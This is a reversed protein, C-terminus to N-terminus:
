QKRTKEGTASYTSFELVIEVRTHKPDDPDFEPNLTSTGTIFVHDLPAQGGRGSVSFIYSPIRGKESLLRTVALAMDSSLKWKEWNERKGVVPQTHGEIRIRRYLRMHERKRIIEAFKLLIKTGEDTLNATDYDFLSSGKFVYRQTGGPDNRDLLLEPADEGLENFITRQLKVQEDRFVEGSGIKGSITLAASFLILILVLSIMLDAFSIYPNLIDQEHSPDKSRFM